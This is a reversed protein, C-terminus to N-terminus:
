RAWDKELEKALQEYRAYADAGFRSAVEAFDKNLSNLADNSLVNGSIKFLVNDEKYIHVSLLELYQRAATVFDNAAGANGDAYSQAAQHMEAVLQRGLQHEYLMVGIPGGQRPVGYEELTPFLHQEEKEHHFRDAFTRIFDVIESLPQAPITEGREIRLCIGDLARLVCEIIRHERSLIEMPTTM